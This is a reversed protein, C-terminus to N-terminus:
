EFGSVLPVLLVTSADYGDLWLEHSTCIKLGDPPVFKPTVGNAIQAVTVGYHHHVGRRRLPAGDSQEDTTPRPCEGDSLARTTTGARIVVREDFEDSAGAYQRVPAVPVHALERDGLIENDM